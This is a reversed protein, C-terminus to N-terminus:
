PVDCGNLSAPYNCITQSADVIRYHLSQENDVLAAYVLSKLHGWPYFNLPNLDSSRLAWASRGVWRDHSTHNLVDRMVRSLHAPFGDHMYWMRLRVDLPVDELLKALDYLLFDQYDNGKLRYPLVHPGVSCDGVIGARM